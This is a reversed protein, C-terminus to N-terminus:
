VKTPQLSRQYAYRILFAGLILAILGGITFAILVTEYWSASTPRYLDRILNALSLGIVVIGANLFGSGVRAYANKLAIAIRAKSSFQGLLGFVLAYVGFIALLAGSSILFVMDDLGFAYISINNSALYRIQQQYIGNLAFAIFLGVLLLSVGVGILAGITLLTKSKEDSISSL